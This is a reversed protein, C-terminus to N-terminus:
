AQSLEADILLHVALVSDLYRLPFPKTLYDAAGQALAGRATDLDDLATVMIVCTRPAVTKIQRLAELGGMGAMTLDLLVIRRFEPGAGRRGRRPDSVDFGKGGLYEVLVKRFESEDDVVLVRARVRQEIQAAESDNAAAVLAAPAM